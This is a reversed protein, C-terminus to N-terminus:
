RVRGRADVSIRTAPRGDRLGILEDTLNVCPCVHNPVIEVRDGVALDCGAPVEMMGHEESLRVLRMAPEGRVEGFGTGGIFSDSTLTKSGADVVVRDPAPRSVVTALVTVAVDEPGCTGLQVQTRDNFIYTGPRAETAGSGGALDLFRATPTSGVSVELGGGLARATEALPAAERVAIERITDADRASYAPGAHTMVGVLAVGPLARIREALAISPAGAPQGMRRYDTTDVELYVPVRRGLARGVEGIGAAVEVSDVACTFRPVRLLLERLRALKLPGVVPYALLIDDLGAAAMVEAEGLKAVTIGVAGIAVQRRAFYPSKHTKAHPRLRMGAATARAQMRQLNAEV